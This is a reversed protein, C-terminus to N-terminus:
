FEPDLPLVKYRLSVDTKPFKRHFNRLIRQLVMDGNEFNSSPLMLLYQSVSYRSFVDGRRLSASIIERLHDMNLNLPKQGLQEGSPDALTILAIQIVQGNRACSRANLKYIDKFFEYECYFAGPTRVTEALEQKIVNLDTELRNSTKAIERYLSTLEPSPTVGFQNFFLDTVYEYHQLAAQQQGTEALARILSQHLPEDYPDIVVAKECIAIIEGSRSDAELLSIAERVAKLYQAHYYTSIPVVWPELASKPLFDGKYLSIAGLLANLRADDDAAAAAARLFEDFEDADTKMPIATNWAYTGRRSVLLEKGGSFGLEAVAARARHLLTKLTNAPNAVDDDPWLLEILDNQSVERDRFTVLYELLIWVKKSRNSQDNVSCGNASLSFEGLMNARLIGDEPM